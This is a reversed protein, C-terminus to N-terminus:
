AHDCPPQAGAGGASGDPGGGQQAPGQATSAAGRSRAAAGRPLPEARGGDEGPGGGTSADASEAVRVLAPLVYRVRTYAGPESEVELGYPAGYNLRIRRHVNSVGIRYLGDQEPQADLVRAARDPEMGAGDDSVELLLVKGALVEAGPDRCPAPTLGREEVRAAVRITGRAPRAPVGSAGGSFGHLISNEVIPQLIMRLTLLAETGPELALELAFREGFRVKMIGVYATVNDVERSLEALREAGSYSDSLVRMLDRTMGAIGDARAAVAMLRISNLTNAVFHPDIQYRLADLEASLREAELRERERVLRETQEVMANFGHALEALETINQASARVGYDGKGVRAMHRVVARIPGAVRAFFVEAYILFFLALLAVAPYLYWQYKVVKESLAAKDALLALTWGTSRMPYLTALWPRGDAQVEQASAVGGAAAAAALRGLTGLEDAGTGPPLSSLIPKGSRGFVVVASGEDDGWRAELADFYPARFMVLLAEIATDDNRAPCVALSIMNREGVNRTPAEFTDLLFVKGPDAAAGAYVSRKISGVGRINPYNSYAYAPGARLYVVVAGVQKTYNFFSVLKEDLRRAALYREKPDIAVDYEAALERLQQDHLLAAALIAVNDTENRINQAVQEATVEAQRAVTEYLASLYLRVLLASVLLSPVAVVLLFAASFRRSLTVM